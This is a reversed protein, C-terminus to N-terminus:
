STCAADRATITTATILPLKPVSRAELTGNNYHVALVSLRTLLTADVLQVGVVVAEVDAGEEAVPVRAVRQTVVAVERLRRVHM